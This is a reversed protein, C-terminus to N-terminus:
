TVAGYKISQILDCVVHSKGADILAKPKQGGLQENEAELWTDPKEFIESIEKLLEQDPKSSM